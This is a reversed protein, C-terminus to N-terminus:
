MTLVFIGAPSLVLIAEPEEFGTLYYFDSDQRYEYDVDSNRNAVPAAKFIAVSKRSLKELVAQRRQKYINDKDQAFALTSLALFGALFCTLWKKLNM